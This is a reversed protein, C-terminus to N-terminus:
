SVDLTGPGIVIGTGTTTIIVRVQRGVAPVVVLSPAQTPHSRADWGMFLDSSVTATTMTNGKRDSGSGGNRSAGGNGIWTAGDLSVEVSVDVVGVPNLFQSVDYTLLYSRASDLIMAPGEIHQGPSYGHQPFSIVAAM